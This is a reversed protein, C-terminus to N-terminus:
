TRLPSERGARQQKIQGQPCARNRMLCRNGFPLHVSATRLFWLGCSHRTNTKENTIAVAPYTHEFAYRAIRSTLALWSWPAARFASLLIGCCVIAADLCCRKIDWSQLTRVMFPLDRENCRLFRKRRLASASAMPATVKLRAFVPQDCAVLPVM